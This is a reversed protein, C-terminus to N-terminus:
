TIAGYKKELEVLNEGPEEDPDMFILELEEGQTAASKRIAVKKGLTRLSWIGACTDDLAKMSKESAGNRRPPPTSMAALTLLETTTKWSGFSRQRDCVLRVLPLIGILIYIIFVSSALYEATSDARLGFGRMGFRLHLQSYSFDAVTAQSTSEYFSPPPFPPTQVASGNTMFEKEVAPSYDYLATTNGLTQLEVGIRSLVDATFTTLIHELFPVSRDISEILYHSGFLMGVNLLSELTTTRPRGDTIPSLPTIADLRERSATIPRFDRNSTPSPVFQTKIDITLPDAPGKVDELFNSNTIEFVSPDTSTWTVARVWRADISCGSGVRGYKGATSENFPGFFMLGVTVAGFEPPLSVWQARASRDRTKNYDPDGRDLSSWLQAMTSALRFDRIEGDVLQDKLINGSVWSRDEQLVPFPVIADNELYLKFRTCAARVVPSQVKIAGTRAGALYRKYRNAANQVALWCYRGHSQAVFAAPSGVDLTWTDFVEPAGRIGGRVRKAFTEDQLDTKWQGYSRTKPPISATLYALLQPYGASLCSTNSNSGTIRCNPNGLHAATINSPWLDNHSGRLYFSTGAVEWWKQTPIMLVAGAPGITASVVTAVVLLLVLRQRVWNFIPRVLFSGILDLSWLFGLNSIQVSSGLLGLPIGDGFCLNRALTESAIDTLSATVLLELAKATIQLIAIKESDTLRNGDLTQGIYFGTRQIVLLAIGSAVPIFRWAYRFAAVKASSSVAIKKREVGRKRDAFAALTHIIRQGILHLFDIRREVLTGTSALVQRPFRLFKSSAGALFDM